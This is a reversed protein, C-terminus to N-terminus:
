VGYDGGKAASGMSPLKIFCAGSLNNRSLTEGM